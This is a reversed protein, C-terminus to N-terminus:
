GRCRWFKNGDLVSCGEQGLEEYVELRPASTVRQRPRDCNESSFRSGTGNLWVLGLDPSLACFDNRCRVSGGSAMEVCSLTHESCSGCSAVCCGQASTQGCGPRPMGPSRAQGRHADHFGWFLYAGHRTFLETACSVVGFVIQKALYAHCLGKTKREVRM